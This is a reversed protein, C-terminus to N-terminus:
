RYYEEISQKEKAQSIFWKALPGDARAWPDDAGWIVQVPCSLKETLAEPRPGPEGTFVAVFVDVAGPDAAPKILIDLLEDNVAEANAYPPPLGTAARARLLKAIRDKDRFQDFMWNAVSRQKLLWELVAFVPRMAAVTWDDQYIGKQNMGGVCNLLCVGKVANGLETAAYLAVQSGISNGVIAVPAQVIENVFAVIQDKWLHPNYDVETPKASDGFGLLDVAIVRHSESMDAALKRFHHCNGGFGHVLLVAPGQGVEAYNIDWGKWKWSRERYPVARYGQNVSRVAEMMARVPVSTPAQVSLLRGQFDGDVKTVGEVERLATALVELCRDERLGNISLEVSRGGNGEHESTSATVQARESRLVRAGSDICDRVQPPLPIPVRRRRARCVTPAFLVSQACSCAAM